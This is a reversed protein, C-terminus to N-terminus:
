KKIKPVLSFPLRRKIGEEALDLYKLFVVLLDEIQEPSLASRELRMTFKAFSPCRSLKTLETVSPTRKVFLAAVEEDPSQIRRAELVLNRWDLTSNPLATAIKKIITDSPIRSGTEIQSIYPATVGVVRALEAQSLSGAERAERIRGGFAQREDPSALATASRRRM